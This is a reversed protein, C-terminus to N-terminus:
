PHTSPAPTPQSAKEVTARLTALDDRTSFLDDRTNCLVDELHAFREEMRALRAQEVTLPPDLPFVSPAPMRPMAPRETRARVPRAAPDSM